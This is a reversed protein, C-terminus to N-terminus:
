RASVTGVTSVGPTGLSAVTESAGTRQGPRRRPARAPGRPVIAAPEAYPPGMFARTRAAAESTSPSVAQPPPPVDNPRAAVPRAPAAAGGDLPPGGGDGGVEVVVAPGVERRERAVARAGGAAPAAGGVAEDGDGRAPGAGVREEGDAVVEVREVVAPEELAEAHVADRADATGREGVGHEVDAVRRVVGGHQRRDVGQVGRRAGRVVEDDHFAVAERRAADRRGGRDAPDRRGDDEREGVGHEEDDGGAEGLTRRVQPDRAAGVLAGAVNSTRAGATGM